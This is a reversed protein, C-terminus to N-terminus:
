IYLNRGDLDNFPIDIGFDRLVIQQSRLACSHDDPQQIFIPDSANEGPEGVVQYSANLQEEMDNNIIEDDYDSEEEWALVEEETVLPPLGLEWFGFDGKHLEWDFNSGFSVSDNAIEYAEALISNGNLSSEILQNESETTNGDIYAALLEDSIGSNLIDKIDKM